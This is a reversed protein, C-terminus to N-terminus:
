ELVEPHHRLTEVGRSLLTRVGPSSLGLIRGIQLDSLDFQYRLLLAEYQRPSLAARLTEFWARVESAALSSDDGRPERDRSLPLFALLRRRRARDIILRRAIVFLWATPDGEPGRGQVWARYGREIADSVIDEADAPNREFVRVYGSLRPSAAEILGSFERAAAGGGESTERPTSVDFTM